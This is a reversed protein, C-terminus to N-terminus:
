ILVDRWKLYFKEENVAPLIANCFELEEDSVGEGAHARNEIECARRLYEPKVFHTQLVYNMIASGIIIRPYVAKEELAVADILGQGFIVDDNFSITWITIGGRLFLDYQLIFHRQIDAVIAMFALFRQYEFPTTGTELCLLINDSFVKTDQCVFYAIYYEKISEVQRDEKPM